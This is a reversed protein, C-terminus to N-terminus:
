AIERIAIPELAASLWFNCPEGCPLDGATGSYWAPACVCAGCVDAVLEERAGADLRTLQRFQGTQRAVVAELSTASFAGRRALAWAAVVGPYITELVAPLRDATPLPVRWGRPLDRRTPLPRFHPMERVRRRLDGPTELTELVSADLTRDASHRVEGRRVGVQGVSDLTGREYAAILAAAGAQPFGGWAVGPDSDRGPTRLVAGSERALDLVIELLGEDDGVPRTYHVIRGEVNGVSTGAALGLRRPIDRGAHSGLAVFYPVAIIVPASSRMYVEEIAPADDLYLAVVERALGTRRLQEAQAETNQRSDPERRTAHGVIAVALRDPSITGAQLVADIRARIIQSIWPHSGVPDAYRVVRGSQQMVAGSLDLEAPIVTKTFYGMSNFVPIVTVNRAHLTKLVQGYAPPEKWFAATVEDAVDLARIRDVLRWVPGATELSIHSGHGALVIATESM